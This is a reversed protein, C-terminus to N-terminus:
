QEREKIGFIGKPRFLLFVFLLIYAIAEKFQFLLFWVGYNGVWRKKLAGKCTALFLM